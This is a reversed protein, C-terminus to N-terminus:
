ELCICDCCEFPCDIESCRSQLFRCEPDTEPICGDNHSGAAAGAAAVTATTAAGIRRIVTRRNMFGVEGVSALSM